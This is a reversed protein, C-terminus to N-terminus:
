EESIHLAKLLRKDDANFMEAKMPPKLPKGPEPCTQVREKELDRTLAMHQLATASIKWQITHQCNHCFSKFLLEGDASFQCEFLQTQEECKVCQISVGWWTM